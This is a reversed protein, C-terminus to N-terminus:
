FQSRLALQFLVDPATEVVIDESVVIDLATNETLGVTGGMLLQASSGGLQSLASDYLQTHGDLQLKLVVAQSAQWMLAASGFGAWDRQRAAIVDGTQMWLLGASLHYGWDGTAIPESYHLSLYADHGGSGTLKHADGTALKVGARLALGDTLAYALALQVDGLGDSHDALGLQEAGSDIYSFRLQDRPAQDRNGDPLGFTDHWGDIFSDMGGGDYTIYPLTIGLEWRESLGWQLTLATRYSEGDLYIAESGSQDTTFYSAAEAVLTWRGAAAGVLEAGQTQPLGFLQVLPSRNSSAFPQDIVGAAALMPSLALVPIVRKMLLGLKVM